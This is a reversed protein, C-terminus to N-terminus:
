AEVRDTIDRVRSRLASIMKGMSRAEEAATVLLEEPPSKQSEACASESRTVRLLREALNAIDNSLGEIEIRLSNNHQELQSASRPAAAPVASSVQRPSHNMRVIM